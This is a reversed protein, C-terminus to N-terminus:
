GWRLTMCEGEHVNLYAGVGHGTGHLYDLGVEWLARRALTDLMQGSFLDVSGNLARGRFEECLLEGKVLRPFIASSLAINGKM